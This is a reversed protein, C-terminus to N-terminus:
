APSSNQLLSDFKQPHYHFKYEGCPRGINKKIKYREECHLPICCYSIYWICVFLIIGLKYKWIFGNMTCLKCECFIKHFITLLLCIIKWFYKTFVLLRFTNDRSHIGINVSLLNVAEKWISHRVTNRISVMFPGTGNYQWFIWKRPALNNQIQPSTKFQPTLFLLPHKFNTICFHLCKICDRKSSLWLCASGSIIYLDWTCFGEGNPVTAMSFLKWGQLVNNAWIILLKSVIPFKARWHSISAGLKM